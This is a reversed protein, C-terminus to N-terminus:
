NRKRGFEKLAGETFKSAHTKNSVVEQILGAREEASLLHRFVGHFAEHYVVGKGKLANNLYIVKDKFAGLVTGDMQALSILESLSTSDIGFQPLSQKLWEVSSLREEDTETVVDKDEALSFVEIDPLDTEDIDMSKLEGQQHIREEVTVPALM